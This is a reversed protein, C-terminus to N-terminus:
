APKADQLLTEARAVLPAVLRQSAAAARDLDFVAALQDAPIAALRADPSQRILDRLDVGAQLAEQCLAAVLAQADARGLAPILLAALPESFVTGHLAEINRRCRGADVQLGALLERLVTAAACVRTLLEPVQGIEAQWNGLAREQEQQMGHLLGAMMGPLPQTAAIIRMSLVPNRKHPMASSGGRGPAHPERLEGIEAMAGLGVDHAIKTMTGAALAADSALALWPARLTHWTDGPDELGLERALAARLAPGAEGWAALDGIAGGLSVALARHACTMLRQRDQALAHSWRAFRLGMTTVGAPQLLTRALAPTSAHARALAAAARAADLLAADLRGVAEKACLVLATDLVDQTTAGFHVYASASSDVARVGATLARVLPIALSGANAAERVLDDPAPRLSQAHAAITNAADTPILGLRAQAQALASEFRLMAQILATDSFATGCEDGLVARAFLNTTM